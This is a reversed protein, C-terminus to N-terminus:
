RINQKDTDNALVRNQDAQTKIDNLFNDNDAQDAPLKDKQQKGNQQGVLPERQQDIV